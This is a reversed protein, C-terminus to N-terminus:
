PMNWTCTQYHRAYSITNTKSAFQEYGLVEIKKAGLELKLYSFFKSIVGPGVMHVVNLKNQCKNINNRINCQSISKIREWYESYILNSPTIMISNEVYTGATGEMLYIINENLKNFFSPDIIEVDMDFYAGGFKELLIYRIYDFKYISPLSNLIKFFEIDDEKLLYDIDEDHWMKIEHPCQQWISYCKHWIPNWKSKDKPALLHITM